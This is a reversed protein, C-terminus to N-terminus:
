SAKAPRVGAFRHGDRHDPDTYWYLRFGYNNVRIRMNDHFREWLGDLMTPKVGHLLYLLM